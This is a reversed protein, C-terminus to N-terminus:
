AYGSEREGQFFPLLFVRDRVTPSPDPKDKCRIVGVGADVEVVANVRGRSCERGPRLGMNVGQGAVGLQAWAACTQMDEDLASQGRSAPFFAVDFHVAIGPEERHGPLMHSASRVGYFKSLVFERGEMRGDKADGLRRSLVCVRHCQPQLIGGEEVLGTTRPM